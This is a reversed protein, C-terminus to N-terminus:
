QAEAAVRGFDGSEQVTRLGDRLMCDPDVPELDKIDGDELSARRSWDEQELIELVDDIPPNDEEQCYAHLPNDSSQSVSGSQGM